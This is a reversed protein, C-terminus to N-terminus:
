RRVAPPSAAEDRNESLAHHGLDGGSDDYAEFGFLLRGAGGARDAFARADM